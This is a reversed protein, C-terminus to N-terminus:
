NSGQLSNRFRSKKKVLRNITIRLQLRKQTTSPNKPPFIQHSISQKQLSALIRTKSAQSVVEILGNANVLNQKDM